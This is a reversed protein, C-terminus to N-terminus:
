DVREGATRRVIRELAASWTTSANLSPILLLDEGGAERFSERARLGIEELTELCDSVFAPCFVALRKVGRSPLAAVTEDTYPRIWQTRGLRSQFAVSRSGEPLGLRESIRRATEYCQARYCWPAALSERACCDERSLCHGGTPDSRRLQREPLGHFSFLVHDPRFAELAPAGVRAFSEVFGADAFFPEVVKVPPVNWRKALLRYVEAVVTGTTASAYQPFLPAVVIREAGAQLLRDIASELSPRGYRMGLEVVWGAGLAERLRETLAVSHVLLPSGEATWIKRYAEASQRPRFPLIVLHLLLWRGLAPLDVVRPDGLFERLYRRVEPPEPADPTGVNVLLLGTRGARVLATSM